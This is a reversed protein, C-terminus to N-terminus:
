SGQRALGLIMEWASRRGTVDRAFQRSVTGGERLTYFLLLPVGDYVVTKDPQYEEYLNWTREKDIFPLTENIRDFHSKRCHLLIYDPNFYIKLMDDFKHQEVDRLLEKEKGFRFYKEFIESTVWMEWTEVFRIDPRVLNRQQLFHYHGPEFIVEVAAGEPVEENLFKLFKPDSGAELWYTSEFGQRDAGSLGGVIENYYSLEYPHIKCLAAGGPLCLLVLIVISPVIARRKGSVFRIKSISECLGGLGIGAAGALFVIIVIFLRIGDHGPTSPLLMWLYFTAVNLLCLVCV